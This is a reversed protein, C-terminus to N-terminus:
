VLFFEKHCFHKVVLIVVILKKIKFVRSNKLSSYGFHLLFTKKYLNKFYLSNIMLYVTDFSSTAVTCFNNEIKIKAM